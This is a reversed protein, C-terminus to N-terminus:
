YGNKVSEPAIFRNVVFYPRRSAGPGPLQVYVFLGALIFRIEFSPTDRGSFHCFLM